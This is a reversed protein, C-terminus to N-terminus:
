NLVQCFTLGGVYDEQQMNLARWNTREMTRAFFTLTMDPFCVIKKRSCVGATCEWGIIM